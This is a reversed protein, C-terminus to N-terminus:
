AAIRAVTTLDVTTYDYEDEVKVHIASASAGTLNDIAGLHLPRPIQTEDFVVHYTAGGTGATVTVATDPIDALARLATQVQAPTAGHGLTATPSNGYVPAWTGGTPSGTLTINQVLGAKYDAALVTPVAFLVPSYRTSKGGVTADGFTVRCALTHGEAVPIAASKATLYVGDVWLDAGPLRLVGSEVGAVIPALVLTRPPVATTLRLEPLGGVQKNDPGLILYEITASMNVAYLDPINGADGFAGTTDGVIANYRGVLHFSTLADFDAM